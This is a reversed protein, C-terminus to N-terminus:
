QPTLFRAADLLGAGCAYPCHDGNRSRASQKLREAVKDPNGILSPDAAMGLAIVGAVHPAAMSTGNMAEFWNSRVEDQAVASWVGDVYGDQNDDRNVDGGPAMVTVGDGFASYPTLHGRVDSAAVSIVGPICAPVNSSVDNAGNGAAAVITAGAARAAEIAAFYIGFDSKTCAISQNPHNERIEDLNMGLSLNIVHAPNPNKPVGQVDLGAAWRIADTIDRTSGGSCGLVRIPVIRVRWNVGTLGLGNNSAFAGVTGAVHTGHWTNWTRRDQRDLEGGCALAGDGVDTPDSDRGDGDASRRVDSIFDHGPLLNEADFDPHNAYIGTDIVAVVIKRDGTTKMWAEPLNIGGDLGLNARNTLYHWHLSFYADNAQRGSGGDLSQKRLKPEKLPTRAPPPSLTVTWNPHAFDVRKDKMLRDATELLEELAKDDTGRARTQSPSLRFVASNGGTAELTADQADFPGVAEGSRKTPSDPRADELASKLDNESKFGVILEGPVFTRGQSLAQQTSFILSLCLIGVAGAFIRGARLSYSM